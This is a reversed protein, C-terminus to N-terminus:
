AGGTMTAAIRARVLSLAARLPEYIRTTRDRDQDALQVRLVAALAADVAALASGKAAQDAAFDVAANHALHVAPAITARYTECGTAPPTRRVCEAVYWDAGAAIAERSTVLAVELPSAQWPARASCGSGALTAAAVIAALTAAYLNSM